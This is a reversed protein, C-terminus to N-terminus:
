KLRRTTRRTATQRNVLQTAFLVRCWDDADAGVERADRELVVRQRVAELHDQAAVLPHRHDGDVEPVVDTWGVLLRAAGAEGVQELM